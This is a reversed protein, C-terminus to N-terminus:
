ITLCLFYGHNKYSKDLHHVMYISDLGIGRMRMASAQHFMTVVVVLYWYWYNADNIIKYFKTKKLTFCCNPTNTSPVTQFQPMIKVSRWLLTVHSDVWALKKTLTLKYFVILSYVNKWLFLFM